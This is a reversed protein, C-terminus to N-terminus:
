GHIPLPSGAVPPPSLEDYQCLPMLRLHSAIAIRCVVPIWLYTLLGFFTLFFTEVTQTESFTVDSPEGKKEGKKWDHFKKSIGSHDRAPVFSVYSTKAFLPRFFLYGTVM